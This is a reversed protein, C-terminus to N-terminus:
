RASLDKRRQELESDKSEIQEKQENNSRMYNMLSAESKRNEAELM